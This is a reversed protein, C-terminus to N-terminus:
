STDPRDTMMATNRRAEIIWAGEYEERAIYVAEDRSECETTFREDDRGVWWSWNEQTYTM